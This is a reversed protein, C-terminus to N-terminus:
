KYPENQRKKKPASVVPEDAKEEEPGDEELLESPDEAVEAEDERVEVNFIGDGDVAGSPPSDDAIPGLDEEAEGEEPIPIEEVPTPYELSSQM